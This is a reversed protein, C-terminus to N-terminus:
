AKSTIVLIFGMVGRSLDDYCYDKSDKVQFCYSQVACLASCVLYGLTTDIKQQDSFEETIYKTSVHLNRYSEYGVLFGPEQKYYNANTELFFCMHDECLSLCLESGAETIVNTKSYEKNIM